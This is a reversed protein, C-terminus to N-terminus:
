VLFSPFRYHSSNPLHLRKPAVSLDRLYPMSVPHLSTKSGKKQVASVNQQWKKYVDPVTEPSGVGLYWYTPAASPMAEAVDDVWRPKLGLKRVLANQQQLSYTLYAEREIDSGLFRLTSFSEPDLCLAYAAVKRAAAPV